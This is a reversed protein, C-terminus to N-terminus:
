RPSDTIEIKDLIGDSGEILSILTQVGHMAGNASSATITVMQEETDVVLKYGETTSIESSMNLHIRGAVEQATLNINLAEPIM